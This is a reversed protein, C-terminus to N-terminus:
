RWVLKVGDAGFTVAPAVTVDKKPPCYRYAALSLYLSQGRKSDTRVKIQERDLWYFGKSLRYQADNNIAEPCTPPFVRCFKMLASKSIKGPATEMSRLRQYLAHKSLVVFGPDTIQCEVQM